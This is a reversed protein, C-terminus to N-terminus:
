VERRKGTESAVTKKRARVKKAVVKKKAPAKAGPTKLEQHNANLSLAKDRWQLAKHGWTRAGHVIEQRLKKGSKPFFLFSVTGGVASGVLLGALFGGNFNARAM